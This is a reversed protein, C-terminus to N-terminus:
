GYIIHILKRVRFHKMTCLTRRLVRTGGAYIEPLFQNYWRHPRETGVGGRDFGGIYYFSGGCKVVACYCFFYFYYNIVNRLLTKTSKENRRTERKRFCKNITRAHTYIHTHYRRSKDAAPTERHFMWFGTRKLRNM